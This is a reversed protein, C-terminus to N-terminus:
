EGSAIKLEVEDDDDDARETEATLQGNVTFRAEFEELASPTFFMERKGPRIARLLGNKVWNRVTRETKGYRDAVTKVDYRPELNYM